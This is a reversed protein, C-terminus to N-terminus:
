VLWVRGAGSTTSLQLSQDNLFSTLHNVSHNGRWQHDDLIHGLSFRDKAESKSLFLNSLEKDLQIDFM